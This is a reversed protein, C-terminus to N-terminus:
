PTKIIPKQAATDMIKAITDAVAAAAAVPAEAVPPVTAVTDTTAEVKAEGSDNCGITAVSVLMIGGLIMKFATKKNKSIM